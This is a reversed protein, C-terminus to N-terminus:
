ETALINTLIDISAKEAILLECDILDYASAKKSDVLYVKRLNRIAMDLKEDYGAVLITIKKDHYDLAKLLSYFDSTKHTELNFSDVIFLEGLSVKNSLISKRALKSVKKPLKHNYDHPEPGFVTGGGKWLPSRITGARAGGRGKQKFPKKGGGSVDARNKTSHTGQRMNTMEALVAQRIVGNNPEIGFVTEDLQFDSTKKGSLNHINFKM